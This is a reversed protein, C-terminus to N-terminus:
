GARIAASMAVLAQRAYKELLALEEESIPESEEDEADEIAEAVYDAAYPQLRDAQDPDADFLSRMKVGRFRDGFAHDFMEALEFCLYELTEQAAPELGEVTRAWEALESQVNAYRDQRRTRERPPLDALLQWTGETVEWPVVSGEISGRPPMEVASPERASEEETAGNPEPEVVVRDRLIEEASTGAVLLDWVGFLNSYLRMADGPGGFRPEKEFLGPIVEPPLEDGAIAERFREVLGAVDVSAGAKQLLKDLLEPGEYIRALSPAQAVESRRGKGEGGGSGRKGRAM